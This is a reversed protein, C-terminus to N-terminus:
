RPSTRRQRSIRHHMIAQWIRCQIGGRIHMRRLDENTIVELVDHKTYLEEVFKDVTEQDAGHSKLWDVLGQDVRRQPQTASDGGAGHLGNRGPEQQSLMRLHDMSVRKEQICSKLLNQYAENVIVLEQLLRTNEETLSQLKSYLERNAETQYQLQAKQSKTSNVTSVGSTSGEEGQVHGQGGMEQNFSEASQQGLIHAGLEPAFVTIAAHIANRTINDLAFMWHPQINCHKLTQNVAEHFVYLALQIENQATMDFDLEERLKDFAFSLHKNDHSVVYQQLGKLLVLLHETKLKPQTINAETHLLTLWRSCIQVEDRSLVQALTARRESDKRLLYFGQERSGSGASGTEPSPSSAEDPSMLSLHKTSDPSTISCTDPEPSLGGFSSSFTASDSASRLPTDPPAELDTSDVETEADPASSPSPIQLHLHKTEQQQSPPDPVSISRLYDASKGKHHHKKKNSTRSDGRFLNARQLFTHELLETATARKEPDPEFCRLLFSKAKETMEIPIDPHAKYYGVKFMAAEPSGLEIFPPKGTAMEIVTCGLSWIDAPAGYGRAGRDIVEPAMYQLTGAFTETFNHLGSLRKSTGFDSIKLVGSYTNVLVNDGKIDRHVIKNDHLYRLGELIQRTYFAITAENDKLPGWKSRLLTSLSGGPVQEMFIKFFGDESISGLYKVINKHSLRSHLRIEEHLPQVEEINKEPVEKIAIRVQTTLDRAAVVVGYTGRGLIVRNGKEDIEYEYQPIEIGALADTDFEYVNPIKIPLSCRKKKWIIDRLRRSM